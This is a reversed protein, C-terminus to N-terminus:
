DIVELNSSAHSVVQVYHQQLSCNFHLSANLGDNRAAVQLMPMGAASPTTMNFSLLSQNAAGTPFDFYRGRSVLSCNPYLYGMEFNEFKGVWRNVTASIKETNNSSTYGIETGRGFLLTGIQSSYYTEDDSSTPTITYWGDKNHKQLNLHSHIMPIAVAGFPDHGLSIILNGVAQFAAVYTAATSIRGYDNLASLNTFVTPADPRLWLVDLTHRTSKATTYQYEGRAAQSGL